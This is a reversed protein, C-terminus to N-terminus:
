LLWVFMVYQMVSVLIIGLCLIGLIEKSTFEYESRELNDSNDALVILVLSQGVVPIMVMCALCVLLLIELSLRIVERTKM